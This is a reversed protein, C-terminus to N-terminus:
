AKTMALTIASTMLDDMGVGPRIHQIDRVIELPNFWSQKLLRPMSYATRHHQKAVIRDTAILRLGQREAINAWDTLTPAPNGSYMYHYRAKLSPLLHPHHESVYRQLDSYTLRQAAYPFHGLICTSNITWWWYEDLCIFIGDDTLLDRVKALARDLDLLDFVLLGAVFDYKGSADYIDAHHFEDIAASHPFDRYIGVMPAQSPLLDFVHKARGIRDLDDLSPNELKSVFLDFDPTVESFDVLDLNVVSAALGSAKMLASFTGNGGGLDIARKWGRLLGWRELFWAVYSFTVLDKYCHGFIGDPKWEPGRRAIALTQTKFHSDPISEVFAKNQEYYGPVFDIRHGFETIFHDQM